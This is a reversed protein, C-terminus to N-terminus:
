MTTTPMLSGMPEAAPMTSVSPPGAQISTGPKRLRLGRHMSFRLTERTLVYGRSRGPSPFYLGVITGGGPMVGNHMTASGAPAVTSPRAFLMVEDGRQVYAYMDVFGSTEHFCGM